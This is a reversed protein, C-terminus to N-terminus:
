FPLPVDLTVFTIAQNEVPVLFAPSTPEQPPTATVLLPQLVDAGPIWALGNVGTADQDWLTASNGDYFIPNPTSPQVAVVTDTLISAGRVFRAVVSGQQDALLVGNSVLLDVYDDARVAPLVTSAATIPVVSPFIEAGVVRWVPASGPPVPISFTGDVATTAFSSGLTVLLGDAPLTCTTLRRLDTVICVKGVIVQGGDGGDDLSPADVVGNSGTSPPGNGGPAVPYHEIDQQCGALALAALPLVLRM